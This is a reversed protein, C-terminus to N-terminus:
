PLCKAYKDAIGPRNLRVGQENYFITLDTTAYVRGGDPTMECFRVGCLEILERLNKCIGEDLEVIQDDLFDQAKQRWDEDQDAPPPAAAGPLRAAVRDAGAPDVKRAREVLGRAEEPDRPVGSGDIYAEALALMSGADGADAGERWIAAARAQDRPVGTGTAYATGLVYAAWAVGAARARALWDIAESDPGVAQEDFLLLWALQAMASPDGAVAAARYQTAAEATDKPMGLGREAAFALAIHAFPPVPKKWTLMTMVLGAGEVNQQTGIGALLSYAMAALAHPYDEAVAADLTQFSLEMDGMRSQARSLRYLNPGTRDETVAATCAELARPGDIMDM